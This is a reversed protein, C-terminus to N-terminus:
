KLALIKTLIEKATSTPRFGNQNTLLAIGVPPVNSSYRTLGVWCSFGGKGTSGDKALVDVSGFTPIQWGLGMAFNESKKNPKMPNTIWTQTTNALAQQLPTLQDGEAQLRMAQYLAALWALMDQASSKLDPACTIAVAGKKNSNGQALVAHPPMDAAVFTNPMGIPSTIINRLLAPYGGVMGGQAAASAIAFGLTVFGVNSYVWYGYNEGFNAQNDNWWHLQECTPPENNFLQLGPANKETKPMGSTQTAFKEFTVEDWYSGSVGSTACSTNKLLPGVLTQGLDGIVGQVSLYAALAATFVKTVSGVAYITEPTIETGPAALGYKFFGPVNPDSPYYLAVSIGVDANPHAQQLKKLLKYCNSNMLRQIESSRNNM